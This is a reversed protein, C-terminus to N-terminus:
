YGAAEFDQVTQEQSDLFKLWENSDLFPNEGPHDIMHQRKQLTRNQEPHNGLMIDVPYARLKRFTQIIRQCKDLPLGYKRCHEKYISILGVGGLYGARLTQKGDTADFFFSLTGLTHGPSLVCTIDTNGLRIHDGDEIEIDPWCIPDNPRPGWHMLARDPRERLLATDVASMCVKAGTMTRLDDGSGFHDFHGHSHIIYRIDMPDFSLTRISRLLMHTTQGYGTDFLILGDGTDVLHSCVNRDGVYYLNGFIRFPELAYKDPNEYFDKKSPVFTEVRNQYSPFTGAPQNLTSM